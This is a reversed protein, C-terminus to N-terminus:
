RVTSPQNKSIAKMGEKIFDQYKSCAGTHSRMDSLLVQHLASLVSKSEGATQERVMQDVGHEVCYLM